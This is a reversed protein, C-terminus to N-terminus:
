IRKRLREYFRERSAIMLIYIIKEAKDIEYVIRYQVGKHSFHYSRLGKFPPKLPLGLRPNQKIRPLHVEKVLTRVEPPLKKIDKKVASIAQITYM